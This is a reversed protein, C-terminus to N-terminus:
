EAAMERTVNDIQSVLSQVIGNEVVTTVAKLSKATQGTTLTLVKCEVRSALESGGCM